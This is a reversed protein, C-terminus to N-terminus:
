KSGHCSGLYFRFAETAADAGLAICVFSGAKKAANLFEQQGNQWASKTHDKRKIECVFSPAGPIIVDSAGKTMGEARELAAKSWTRKGENRPHFAIVGWSNPHDRRLRSFFTVQEMTESPCQGRFSQDGFVPVDNPFKM